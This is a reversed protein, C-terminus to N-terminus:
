TCRKYMSSGGSVAHLAASGLCLSGLSLFILLCSTTVFLHLISYCEVPMILTYLGESM